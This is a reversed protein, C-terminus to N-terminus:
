KKIIKLALITFIITGIGVIFVYKKENGRVINLHKYFYAVLFLVLTNLGLVFSLQHVQSKKLYRIIKDTIKMTFKRVLAFIIGKAILYCIVRYISNELIIKIDANAIVMILTVVLTEMIGFLMVVGLIILLYINSLKERFISKFLLGMSVIIISIGLLDLTGFVQNIVYDILAQLLIILFIQKNNVRRRTLFKDTFYFLLFVDGICFIYEIIMWYNM